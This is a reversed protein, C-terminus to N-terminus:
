EEKGGGSEAHRRFRTQLYKVLGLGSAPLMVWVFALVVFGYLVVLGFRAGPRAALMRHATAVGLIAFPLLAVAAMNGAVYGVSGGGVAGVVVAVLLVPLLWDPLDLAGYAPTPRRNRGTAALVAQAVVANIAAMVLWVGMVMAPLGVGLAQVAAQREVPDLQDGVADLTHAVSQTMWGRVGDPHHPLLAVGVAFLAMSALTLWGLVGGPPYWDVSGDANARRRLARNSVVLAPLGAMALFTVGFSWGEVVGAAAAGTAAAGLVAARGLGLGAMMLPLPAFFGLLAGNPLGRALSLFLLSATLGAALPLGIRGTM